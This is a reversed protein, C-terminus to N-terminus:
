KKKVPIGHFLYVKLRTKRVFYQLKCCCFECHTVKSKDISHNITQIYWSFEIVWIAFHCWHCSEGQTNPCLCNKMNHQKWQDFQHLIIWRKLLSRYPVLGFIKNTTVFRNICIILDIEYNRHREARPWYFFVVSRPM